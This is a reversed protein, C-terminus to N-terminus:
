RTAKLWHRKTKHPTPIKAVTWGADALAERVARAVSYTMLICGPAAGAGIRAFWDRTWLVPNRSPSFPDQWVYRWGGAPPPPLTARSADGLWVTWTAQARGDASTLAATWCNPATQQLARCFDKESGTWSEQWPAEGSALARILAEDVELSTLALTPAHEAKSWSTLTALANYGLGLGVDLIGTLSPLEAWASAIGSAEIYLSYAEAAAGAQSHYCEGHEPHSLTLSGDDTRVVVGLGLPSTNDTM